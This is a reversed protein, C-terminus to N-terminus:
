RLSSIEKKSNVRDITPQVLAQPLTSNSDSINTFYLQLNTFDIRLSTVLASISPISGAAADFQNLIEIDQTINIDQISQVFRDYIQGDLTNMMMKVNNGLTSWYNDLFTRSFHIQNGCDNIINSITTNMDTTNGFVM